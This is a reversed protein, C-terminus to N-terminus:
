THGLSAVHALSAVNKTGCNKGILRENQRSAKRLSISM